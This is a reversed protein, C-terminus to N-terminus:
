INPTKFDLFTIEIKTGKFYDRLKSIEDNQFGGVYLISKRKPDIDIKRLISELGNSFTIDRRKKQSKGQYFIHTGTYINKILYFEKM